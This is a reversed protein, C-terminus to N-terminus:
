NQGAYEIKPTFVQLAFDFFYTFFFRFSLKPKKKHDQNILEEIMFYLVEPLLLM